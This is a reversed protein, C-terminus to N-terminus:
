YLEFIKILSDSGGSAVFPLSKHTCLCQVGEDYKNLHANEVHDMQKQTRLDWVKISKDHSATIIEM